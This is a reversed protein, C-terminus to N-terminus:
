TVFIKKETKVRFYKESVGSFANQYHWDPDMPNTNSHDRLIYDLGGFIALNKSKPRFPIEAIFCTVSNFKKKYKWSNKLIINPIM